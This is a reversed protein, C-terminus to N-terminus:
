KLADLLKEAEQVDIQGSHVMELIRRREGTFEQSKEKRLPCDVSQYHTKYKVIRTIMETIVAAVLFITLFDWFNLM